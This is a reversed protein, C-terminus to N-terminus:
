IFRIEIGKSELMSAADKIGKELIRDYINKPFELTLLDDKSCIDKIYLIVKVISDVLGYGSKGFVVDCQKIKKKDRCVVFGRIASKSNRSIRIDLDGFTAISSRSRKSQKSNKM